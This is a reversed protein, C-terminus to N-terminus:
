GTEQGSQTENGEVGPQWGVPGSAVQFAKLGLAKAHLPQKLVAGSPQSRLIHDDPSAPVGNVFPKCAGRTPLFPTCAADNIILDQSISLGHRELDPQGGDGEPCNQEAPSGLEQHCQGEQGKADKDTPPPGVFRAARRSAANQMMM